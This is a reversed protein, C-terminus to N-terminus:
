IGLSHLLLPLACVGIAVNLAGCIKTIIANPKYWTFPLLITLGNILLLVTGLPWIKGLMFAKYSFLATMFFIGLFFHAYVKKDGPNYFHLAVVVWFLGYTAFITGVYVRAEPPMGVDFLYLSVATFIQAVGGFWLAIHALSRGLKGHDTESNLGFGLQELGFVWVTVVLGFVGIAEPNVVNMPLAGKEKTNSFHFSFGTEPRG